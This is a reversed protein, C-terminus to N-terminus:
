RSTSFEALPGSNRSRRPNPEARGCTALSNQNKKIKLDVTARGHQHRGVDGRHQPQVTRHEERAFDIADLLAENFLAERMEVHGPRPVFGRSEDRVIEARVIPQMQMIAVLRQQERAAHRDDLEEAARERGARRMGGAPLHARMKGRAIDVHHRHNPRDAVIRQLCYTRRLRHLIVRIRGHHQAADAIARCLLALKELCDCLSHARFRRHDEDDLVITPRDRGLRGTLRWKVEWGAGRFLKEAQRDGADVAGVEGGRAVRELSRDCRRPLTALRRKQHEIKLSEAVVGVGVVLADVARKVINGGAGGVIRKFGDAQRQAFRLHAVGRQRLELSRQNGFDGLRKDLGASFRTRSCGALGLGGVGFIEVRASLIAALTARSAERHTFRQVGDQARV